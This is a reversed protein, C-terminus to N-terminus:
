ALMLEALPCSSCSSCVTVQLLLLMTERRGGLAAAALATAGWRDPKEADAGAHLLQDLVKAQEGRALHDSSCGPNPSCHLLLLLMECIGPRGRSGALM